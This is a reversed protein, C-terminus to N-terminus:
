SCSCPKDYTIKDTVGFCTRDAASTVVEPDCAERTCTSVAVCTGQQFQADICKGTTEWDGDTNKEVECHQKPFVCGCVSGRSVCINNPGVSEEICEGDGCSATNQNACENPCSCRASAVPGGGFMGGCNSNEAICTGGECVESCDYLLYGRPGCSGASAYVYQEMLITGSLCSDGSTAATGGCNAHTFDQVCGPVMPDMGDSSEKGDGQPPDDTTCTCKASDQASGNCTITEEECYGVKGSCADKCQINKSSSTGCTMTLPDDNADVALEEHVSKLGVGCTDVAEGVAPGKCNSREYEIVCGATKADEGDNDRFRKDPNGGGGACSGGGTGSDSGGSDSGSEDCGCVGGPCEGTSGAGASASASTMSASSTSSASSSGTTTTGMRFGVDDTAAECASGGVLFTMGILLRGTLRRLDM